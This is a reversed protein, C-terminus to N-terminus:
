WTKFLLQLSRLPSLSFLTLKRSLPFRIVSTIKVLVLLWRLVWSELKVNHLHLDLKSWLQTRFVVRLFGQARYPYMIYPLRLHQNRYYQSLTLKKQDAMVRELRFLQYKLLLISNNSGKQEVKAVALDIESLLLHELLILQHWLVLETISCLIMKRSLLKKHKEKYSLKWHLWIVNM